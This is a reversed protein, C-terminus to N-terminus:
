KSVQNRPLAKVAKKRKKARLKVTKPDDYRHDAPYRVKVGKAIAKARAQGRDLCRTCKHISRAYDIPRTKCQGCKGEDIAKQRAAAHRSLQKETTM